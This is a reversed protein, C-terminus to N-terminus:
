SNSQPWFSERTYEKALQPQDFLYEEILPRIQRKWTRELDVLRFDNAMFFSHGITHHRDIHEELRDNLAELGASLGIIETHNGSSYYADLLDPRPAFDFIDFRRRLAADVSRISRDATNMTAIIYLNPPLSFQERHLLRIEDDRHELLYILEGFVSPINARNIEDIVLVVPSDVSRARDALKVLIGPQVEFTIQGSRNVPRLGQAFDEYAYTPHFQVVHVADPRGRTLYRGIREAVWTKGTGPPGSFIIQPRRALLTEVVERIKKSEM